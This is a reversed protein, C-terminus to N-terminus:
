STVAQNAVVSLDGIVREVVDMRGVLMHRYDRQDTRAVERQLAPFHDHLFDHLDRAEKETLQIQM